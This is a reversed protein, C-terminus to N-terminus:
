LLPSNTSLTDISSYISMHLSYPSCAPIVLISIFSDVDTFILGGKEVAQRYWPRTRPDYSILAGSADYKTASRDDTVFFVGDPLAIFCSNTEDSAGFMSYMMDSMNAILGLRDRLQGDEGDVGEALIMQSMVQGNYAPDPAIYPMRPYAEPYTLLNAAYQGLMEVRAKLGQFLEDAIQAELQTSRSMSQEVVAYMVTGTIEEIAALQKQNSEETLQALMNNQRSSLMWFAATLLIVTFLILNIIKSEIGGIVLNKIRKMSKGM